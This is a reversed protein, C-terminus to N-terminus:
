FRNKLSDSVKLIYFKIWCCDCNNILNERIEEYEAIIWFGIETIGQKDVLKKFFMNRITRINNPHSDENHCINRLHELQYFSLVSNLENDFSITKTTLNIKTM